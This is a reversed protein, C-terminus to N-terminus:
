RKCVVRHLALKACCWFSYFSLLVIACPARGGFPIPRWGYCKSELTLALVVVIFFFLMVRTFLKEFEM